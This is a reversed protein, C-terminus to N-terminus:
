KTEGRKAHIEQIKEHVFKQFLEVCAVRGKEEGSLCACMCPHVEKKANTFEGGGHCVPCSPAPESKFTFKPYKTQLQEKTM